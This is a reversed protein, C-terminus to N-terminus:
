DFFRYKLLAFIAKVGDGWTIKKGENYDRGAYSIPVEYIRVGSKLIKATIEPEFDFRNARLPIAQIIERKFVKYGTEMDSLTTNFLINTILTLLKNGLWHWFFMDRHEGTFRSGYVVQAKGKKIPDFLKKWDQPDYELDADQIVVYDGTTQKIGIKLAAGKGQNVKQFIVTIQNDKITKLLEATGDNSGDDIVIIEKNWPTKKVRKIIELITGAENYCPIIVSLKM